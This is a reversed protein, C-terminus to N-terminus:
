ESKTPADREVPPASGPGGRIQLLLEAAVRAPAAPDLRERAISASREVVREALTRSNLGYLAPGYSTLSRVLWEPADAFAREMRAMTVELRSGASAEDGRRLDVFVRELGIQICEDEGAAGSGAAIREAEDLHAWAEDLRDLCRLVGALKRASTAVEIHDPGL